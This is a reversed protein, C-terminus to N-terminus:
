MKRMGQRKKKWNPEQVQILLWWKKMQDKYCKFIRMQIEKEMNKKNEM